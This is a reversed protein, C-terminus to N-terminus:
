SRKRRHRTEPKPLTEIGKRVTALARSLQEELQQMLGRAYADAEERITAAHAEAESVVGEAHAHAQSTIASETTMAAARSEAEAILQRVQEDAGALVAEAEQEATATIRDRDEVAHRAQVLDDPLAVRVRDILDLLDDENVVVNASFPLRRANSVLEEVQDLLELVTGAAAQQSM